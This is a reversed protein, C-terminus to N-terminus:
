FNMTEEDDVLSLPLSEAGCRTSPVPAGYRDLCTAPRVACAAAPQAPARVAAKLMDTHRALTVANMDLCRGLASFQEQARRDACQLSSSSPGADADISAPLAQASVQVAAKFMDALASFQEEISKDLRRFGADLSASEAHSSTAATCPSGQGVPARRQLDEMVHTVARAVSDTQLKIMMMYMREEMAHAKLFSEIFEDYDLDGSGDVDMLTFMQSFDEMNIGLVELTERIADDDFATMMEDHSLLGDNDKDLRKAMDLLQKMALLEAHKKRHAKEEREVDHAAVAHDVIAALILNMLGLSVSVLALAFLIFTAPEHKIIPLLCQGWSDGAVLTQFLMLSMYFIGSFADECYQHVEADLNDRILAAAAEKSAPHVLEIIVLSWLVLLILLLLFGWLMAKMAGIFGTVMVLLEPVLRLLRFTRLLRAVRLIRLIPLMQMGISGRDSRDSVLEVLLGDAWGFLMIFFDLVNWKDRLYRKRHVFLRLAAEITYFALFSRNLWIIAPDYCVDPHCSAMHNAEALMLCVNLVIVAGMVADTYAHTMIRRVLMRSPSWGKTLEAEQEAATKFM